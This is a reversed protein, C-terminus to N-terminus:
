VNITKVNQVTTSPYIGWTNHSRYLPRIYGTDVTIPRQLSHFKMTNERRCWVIYLRLTFESYCYDDESRSHATFSITNLWIKSYGQLTSLQLHSKLLVLWPFQTRIKAFKELKRGAKPKVTFVHLLLTQKYCNEGSFTSCYVLNFYGPALVKVNPTVSKRWKRRLHTGSHPHPFKVVDEPGV